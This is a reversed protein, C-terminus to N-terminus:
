RVGFDTTMVTVTLDAYVGPADTEHGIGIGIQRWKPLLINQRHEPSKMWATVAARADIDGPTWLLNEGVAWDAGPILPYFGEIRRWYTLGDYSNHAFYGLALMESSHQSAAATLARSFTLPALGHSRRIQNLDMLIATRLSNSRHAGHAPVAAFLALALVLLV